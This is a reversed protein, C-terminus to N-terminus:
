GLEECLRDGEKFELRRIGDKTIHHDLILSAVRFQLAYIASLAKLVLVTEGDEDHSKSLRAKLELITKEVEDMNIGKTGCPCICDYAVQFM